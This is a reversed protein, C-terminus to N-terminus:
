RLVVVDEAGSHSTVPWRQVSHESSPTVAQSDLPWFKPCVEGKESYMISLRSSLDEVDFREFSSMKVTLARRTFNSNAMKHLMGAALLRVTRDVKAESCLTYEGAEQWGDRSPGLTTHLAM